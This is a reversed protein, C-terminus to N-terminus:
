VSSSFFCRFSTGVKLGGGSGTNLRGDGTFTAMSSFLFENVSFTDSVEEDEEDDDSFVVVSDLMRSWIMVSMVSIGGGDTVMGTM